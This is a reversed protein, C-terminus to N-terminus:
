RVTRRLPDARWKSPAIGAYRNFMRNFDHQQMYGVRAAIEKISLSTELLLNKAHEMRLHQLMARPSVGFTARFSHRVSDYNPASYLEDLEDNSKSVASNVLHWLRLVEANATSPVVVTQEGSRSAWRNVMVLLLQLWASAAADRDDRSGSHENLLQLFLWRLTELQEAKLSWARKAPDSDRLYPLAQYMGTGGSFHIVWFRPRQVPSTWAGHREGDHYHLLTGATTERWGPPYGILCGDDTVLTFEEFAHSHWEYTASPEAAISRMSILKPVPISPTDPM